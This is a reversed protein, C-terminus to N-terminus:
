LILVFLAVVNDSGSQNGGFKPLLIYYIAQGYLLLHSLTYCQSDLFDNM